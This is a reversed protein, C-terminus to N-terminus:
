ATMMDYLTTVTRWNRATSVTALQTDFYANTLKTRAMGAPLHLYVEQGRVAFRDPPSRDPDLRAVRAADPTGALFYVHLTAPDAGAALYPNDRIVEGVQAATRVVVPVRLGFEAAIREAIAGPLAAATAEDATFLVNGSQIYTRADRCGAALFLARLATMPLLNKGGVNIGRLLALHTAPM